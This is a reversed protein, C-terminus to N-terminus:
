CHRFGSASNRIATAKSNPSICGLAYIFEYSAHYIGEFILKRESPTTPQHPCCSGSSNLIQPLLLQQSDAAESRLLGVQALFPDWWVALVIVHMASIWAKSQGMNANLDPQAASSLARKEYKQTINAGMPHACVM